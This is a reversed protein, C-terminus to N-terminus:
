YFDSRSLGRVSYQDCTGQTCIYFGYGDHFVDPGTHGCGDCSNYSIEEEFDEQEVDDCM